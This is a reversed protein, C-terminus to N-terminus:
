KVKQKSVLTLLEKSNLGHGHLLRDPIFNIVNANLEKLTKYLIASSTVGDCDFDGWVLITQQKEIAEFIRGVAKKMDLFAFPSIFDSKKPNLFNEVENENKLGRLALFENLFSDNTYHKINNEKEKVAIKRYKM